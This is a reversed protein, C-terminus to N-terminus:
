WDRRLRQFPHLLSGESQNMGCIGRSGPKRPGWTNTSRPSLSWARGERPSPGAPASSTASTRWSACPSDQRQSPNFAPPSPASLPHAPQTADRVGPVHTQTFELLHHQVPLGPTSRDMPDCLRVRSFWQVGFPLLLPGPGRPLRPTSPSILPSLPSVARPPPSPQGQAPARRGETNFARVRM